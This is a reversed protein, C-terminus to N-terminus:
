PKRYIGTYFGTEPYLTNTRVAERELEFAGLHQRVKDLRWLHYHCDDFLKPDFNVELYLRGGPRLIRYVDELLADPDPTHDIVNKCVVFDYPGATEASYCVKGAHRYLRDYEPMLPDCADMDLPSFEFMSVLGCGYDLGHGSEDALEPFWALVGGLDEARRALFAERGDRELLGRWFALEAPAKTQRLGLRDYKANMYARVEELSHRLRDSSNFREARPEGYVRYRMLKDSVVTIGAGAALARIWFDWDEGGHLMAEDYGGAKEWVWRRYLATATSYNAELFDALAPHGLEPVWPHVAAGFTLCSPVVIDDLDILAAVTEPEIRDAADLPLIWAHDSAAIGANRAASAGRNQQRLVKVPYRSAVEASEDTSGDDVVIVDVPVTQALASEIAEGLYEAQNFCPIVVLVDAV